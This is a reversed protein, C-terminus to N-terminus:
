FKMCLFCAIEVTFIYKLKNPKALLNDNRYQITILCQGNWLDKVLKEREKMVDTPKVHLIYNIIWDDDVGKTFEKVFRYNAVSYNKELEDIMNEQPRMVDSFELDEGKYMHFVVLIEVFFRVKKTERNEKTIFQIEYPFAWQIDDRQVSIEKRQESTMPGVIQRM